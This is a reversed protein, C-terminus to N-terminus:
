SGHVEYTVGSIRGEHGGLGSRCGWRFGFWSAFVRGTCAHVIAFVVRPRDSSVAGDLRNAAIGLRVVYGIQPCRVHQISTPTISIRMGM